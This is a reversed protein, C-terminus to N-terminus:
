NKGSLRNKRKKKGAAIQKERKISEKKVPFFL